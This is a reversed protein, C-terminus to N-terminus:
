NGSRGGRQLDAVDAPTDVDRPPLHDFRVEEVWEPHTRLLASAGADGEMTMLRPWLGRHFLVPNGREYRYVPVVAPRSSEAAVALLREPVDSPIKPQDGLVILVREWGPERSLVDLGVRISSAIGEDWGENIVAIAEGLDVRDLITEAESGLIVLVLDVPWSNVSEVVVELMPRGDLDVLQKPSGLRKSSGGALVIAATTSM